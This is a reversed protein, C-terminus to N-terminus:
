MKYVRRCQPTTNSLIDATSHKKSRLKHQAFSLWTRATQHCMAHMIMAQRARSVEAVGRSHPRKTGTSRRCHKNLYGIIRQIESCVAQQKLEFIRTGASM